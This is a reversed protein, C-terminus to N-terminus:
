LQFRARTNRTLEQHRASNHWEALSANKKVIQHVKWLAPTLEESIPLAPADKPLLLTLRHILQSTKLDALTISNGVYHGTNGSKQLHAEHISIFKALVENFFTKIAELRADPAAFLVRLGWSLFVSDTNSVYENVLTEEWLNAGLLSHKHALYREIVQTEAIELITGSPTTEYLVPLVQFPAQTKQTAWDVPLEEWKSGTFALLDRILEARQHLPFYALQFSTNTSKAAESLEESSAKTPIPFSPAM